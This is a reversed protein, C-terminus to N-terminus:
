TSKDDSLFGAAACLAIIVAAQVLVWIDPGYVIMWLTAACLTIVSFLLMTMRSSYKRHWDSKFTRLVLFIAALAVLLFLVENM